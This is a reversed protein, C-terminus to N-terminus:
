WTLGMEDLGEVHRCSGSGVAEDREGRCFQGEADGEGGRLAGKM